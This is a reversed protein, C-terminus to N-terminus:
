LNQRTLWDLCFYAVDRWRADVVMSHGRGPFVQHDSVQDPWAQRYRRELAGTSREPILADRGGSVLLLPGRNAAEWPRAGRRRPGSAIVAQVLPRSGAPIVYRRYLEDSEAKDVANAFRRHFQAATPMIARRQHSVAGLRLSLGGLGVISRVSPRGSPVPALAIAASASSRSLLSRAILGGVGHGILIPRRTLTGALMSVHDAVRDLSADAMRAPDARCAAVTASEGPWAPAVCDYGSGEFLEVWPQWSDKHLWLGHVFVVVGRGDDELGRSELV